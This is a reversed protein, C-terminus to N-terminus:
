PANHPSTHALFRVYVHRCAFADLHMGGGPICPSRLAAPPHSLWSLSEGGTELTPDRFNTREGRGGRTV